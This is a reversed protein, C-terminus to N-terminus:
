PARHPVRPCELGRGPEYPARQQVFSCLRRGIEEVSTVGSLDVKDLMSAVSTFHSHPDIFAPLLTKGELNVVEADPSKRNLVEVNTGVAAIRGDEVLVAQATEEGRMTLVTGNYYVTQRM